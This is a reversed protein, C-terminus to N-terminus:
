PARSASVRRLEEVAGHEFRRHGQTGMVVLAYSGTGLEELIAHVPSGAILRKEVPATGGPLSSEVFRVLEAEAAERILEGLPRHAAGPSAASGHAKAVIPPCDWAHLVVLKGGLV